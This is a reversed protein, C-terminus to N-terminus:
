ISYLLFFNKYLKHHWYFMYFISFITNYKTTFFIKFYAELVPGFM